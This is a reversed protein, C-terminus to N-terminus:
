MTAISNNGPSIRSQGSIESDDCFCLSGKSFISSDNVIGNVSDISTSSHTPSRPRNRSNSQEDYNQMFSSLNDNSLPPYPKQSFSPSDNNISLSYDQLYIRENPCNNIIVDRHTSNDKQEDVGHYIQNDEIMNPVSYIANVVNCCPNANKNDPMKDTLQVDSSAIGLGGDFGYNEFRSLRRKLVAVEEKLLRNENQYEAYAKEYMEVKNELNRLYNERRNPVPKGTPGAPITQQQCPIVPFTTSNITFESSSPPWNSLLMETHKTPVPPRPIPLRLTQSISPFENLKLPLPQSM